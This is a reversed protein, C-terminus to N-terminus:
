SQRHTCPVPPASSKAVRPLGFCSCTWTPPPARPPLRSMAHQRALLRTITNSPPTARADYHDLARKDRPWEDRLRAPAVASRSSSTPPLSARWPSNAGGSARMARTLPAGLTAPAGWEITVRFLWRSVALYWCLAAGRLRAELGAGQGAGGPRRPRRRALDRTVRQCQVTRRPGRRRRSAFHARRPAPRRTQATPRAAIRRQRSDLTPPLTWWWRQRVIGVLHRTVCSGARDARRM